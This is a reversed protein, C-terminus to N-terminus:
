AMRALDMTQAPFLPAIMSITRATYAMLVMPASVTIAMSWTWVHLRTRVPTPSVSM